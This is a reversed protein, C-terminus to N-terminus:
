QYKIGLRESMLSKNPIHKRKERHSKDLDEESNWDGDEKRETRMLFGKIIIHINEYTEM